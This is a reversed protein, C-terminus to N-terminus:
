SERLLLTDNTESTHCSMISSYIRRAYHRLWRHRLAGSRGPKWAPPPLRARRSPQATIVCMVRSVSSGAASFVGVRAEQQRGDRTECWLSSIIEQLTLFRLLFLTFPALTLAQPCPARSPLAPPLHHTRPCTRTMAGSASVRASMIGAVPSVPSAAAKGLQQEM